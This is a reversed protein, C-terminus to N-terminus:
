RTLKRSVFLPPKDKVRNARARKCFYVSEHHATPTVLSRTTTSTRINFSLICTYVDNSHERHTSNLDASIIPKLFYALVNNLFCVLKNHGNITGTVCIKVHPHVISVYMSM